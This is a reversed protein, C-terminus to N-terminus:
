GEEGWIGTGLLNWLSEANSFAGDGVNWIDEDPPIAAQTNPVRSM